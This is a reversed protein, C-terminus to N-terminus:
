EGGLRWAARENDDPFRPLITGLNPLPVQTGVELAAWNTEETGGQAFVGITAGVTAYRSEVCALGIQRGEVLVCSTVRGIVRGRTNVVPAGPHITRVGSENMRFRVVQRAPGDKFRALYAERGIFYPKHFKVYAGFGAETPFLDLPGALEHGYLPLGAETRTSDRAALGTPKVGLDAGRELIAHWLRPAEAPHVFIEYGIEEGTYGTRAIVLPLGLLECEILDTRRVRALAAKLAPADTLRQLTALAAPGQLAIDVRQDDGCAPDKLNRLIAPRTVAKDPYRRDICVRGENVANLWAWDKDANAANVVMLYRDRARRYVMIDDLPHGDPDLLYSYHSQGDELWKVYNTTVLDLFDTAQPGAIEFVGMHSVDFLGAAQRVARHEDSVSTYWVPMEWGAFPVIKRTLQRHVEYLCPRKLPASPDDQWVFWPRGPNLHAQDLVHQGVFYPKSLCFYDPHAEFLERGDPRQGGTYAPLGQSSRLIAQAIHGGPVAGAEVFASWLVQADRPHLLFRFEAGGDHAICFVLAPRGHVPGEWFTGPTLDPVTPDVRQVIGWAQPGVLGLTTMQEGESAENSLDEVTVPGEVKRWIDQDDFLIYGDSLGRLWSKVAEHNEPNTLLLYHDHGWQDPALRLFTVDDLLRGRRDLLFTRGGYGPQVTMVDATSVQQMLAQARAGTVRLLGLNSMDLLLAKDELAQRLLVEREEEEAGAYPMFRLDRWEPQPPRFHYHPYGSSAHRLTEAKAGAALAATGRKVEELIDQDIKGRPWEGAVGIYSFPHINKLVTAILDALADMEAPGLGRQTVWPTGLRVGSGLVTLEDGPITNKNAIIGALELIRVAVEGRLPYGTPTQITRLDIVLLHTDTGGYALGLGRRTLAQALAQANEVIRQQLRRFPETRAIQFMVAMAAFKNPHPGGQAGPFVAMDIRAALEENTTLICAGRPGCLTKHTTFTVVDAIGVPNPYVGAVVMGAPHAIDALLYAGVEDAIARFATWDPAWPYSTYGAIILRPRHARALERIEDYDLRGTRKSVGYSAVRYRRGSINFESGHTLHGGQFLDMGMLTDGPQLLADYVALNAAAGSLAQVNVYIHEAAAHENAFCTACRRQALTEVFHVYDAGKYFRRDGYRRYHTLQHGFDLLREEEERTMRLPPYGEAYVNNFVSGLAQRVPRPAYSESPILILRRAQREEEFGIIDHIAPDVHVLDQDFFVDAYEPTTTM